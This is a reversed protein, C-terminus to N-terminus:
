GAPPPPNDPPESQPELQPEPHSESRPDPPPETQPEGLLIRELAERDPLHTPRVVEGSWVYLFVADVSTLPVNYREAWALRYVALQLPDATPAHHTKWDVIEYTAPGTRYVADIRGRIVRGALTLQVPAEIRYPTRHAYPTREFADKLTTLDREDQIEGILWPEVDPQHM